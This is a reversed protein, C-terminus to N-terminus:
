KDELTRCFDGLERCARKMGDGAWIGAGVGRGFREGAVQPEPESLDM